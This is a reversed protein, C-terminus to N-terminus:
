NSQYNQCYGQYYYFNKSTLDFQKNWDVDLDDDDHNTDYNCITGNNENFFVINTGGESTHQKFIIVYWGPEKDDLAPFDLWESERILELTSM